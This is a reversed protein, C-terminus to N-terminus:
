MGRLTKLWEFRSRLGKTKYGHKGRMPDRSDFGGHSGCDLVEILEILCQIRTEYHIVWDWCELGKWQKVMAFDHEITDFIKKISVSMAVETKTNNM